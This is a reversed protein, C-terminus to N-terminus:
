LKPAGYSTGEPFLELQEGSIADPNARGTGSRVFSFRGFAKTLYRPDRGDWPMGLELMLQESIPHTHENM